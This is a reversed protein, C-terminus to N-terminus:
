KAERDLLELLAGFRSLYSHRVLAAAAEAKVPKSFLNPRAWIRMEASSSLSNGQSNGRGHTICRYGFTLSYKQLIELTENDIDYHPAIL